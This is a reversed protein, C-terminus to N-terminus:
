ATTSDDSDAHSRNKENYPSWLSLLFVPYGTFGRSPIPVRDHGRVNRTEFHDCPWTWLLRPLHTYQSFVARAPLYPIITVMYVAQWVSGEQDCM